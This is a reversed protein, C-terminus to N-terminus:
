DVISSLLQIRDTFLTNRYMFKICVSERTLFKRGVKKTSLFPIKTRQEVARYAMTRNAYVHCVPFLLTPSYIALGRITRPFTPDLTQAPCDESRGLGFKRCLMNM